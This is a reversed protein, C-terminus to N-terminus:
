IGKALLLLGSPFWKSLPSFHHYKKQQTEEEEKDTSRDFLLEIQTLIHNTHTNIFDQRNRMLSNCLIM